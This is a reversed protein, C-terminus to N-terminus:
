TLRRHQHVSFAVLIVGLTICWLAYNRILALVGLVILLSVTEKPKFILCILCGVILAIKLAVVAAAAVLLILLLQGM